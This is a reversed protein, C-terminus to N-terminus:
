ALPADPDRAAEEAVVAFRRPTLAGIPAVSDTTLIDHTIADVVVKRM